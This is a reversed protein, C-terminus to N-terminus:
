CRSSWTGRSRRTAEAVLHLGDYAIARDRLDVTTGLNVYQIAPDAPFALALASALARQQRVHADSIYPQTVVIVAAGLQRAFTVGDLVRTTYQHWTTTDEQETGTPIRAADGSFPGVDFGLRDAIAAARDLADATARTALSSQFAVRGHYAAGLDGGARLQMAKERFVLPLIPFYGTLRFLPSQRRWLLDNPGDPLAAGGPRDRMRLDNYGEYLIAIDYHLYAYDALDFRFGYAGQSLAGLNVIRYRTTGRGNLLQQLYSPFAETYPVGYGYATSGGLVVVRTENGEKRGVTPGRYGWVNVGALNQVRSHLYVDVAILSATGLVFVVVATILGFAATRRWTNM